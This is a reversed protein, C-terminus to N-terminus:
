PNGGKYCLNEIRCWAPSNRPYTLAKEQGTLNVSQIQIHYYVQPEEPWSAAWADPLPAGHM